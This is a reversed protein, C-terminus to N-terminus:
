STESQICKQLPTGKWTNIILLRFRDLNDARQVSQVQACCKHTHEIAVIRNISLLLPHKTCLNSVHLHASAWDLQVASTSSQGAAPPPTEVSLSAM